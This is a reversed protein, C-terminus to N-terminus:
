RRRGIGENRGSNRDTEPHYTVTIVRVDPGVRAQLLNIAVQPNTNEFFETAFGSRPQYYRIETTQM